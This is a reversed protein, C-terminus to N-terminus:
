ANEFEYIAKIMENMKKMLIKLEKIDNKIETIDSKRVLKDSNDYIKISDNIKKGSKIKVKKKEIVEEIKKGSQIKAKKKEIVEELKKEDLKTKEIIEALSINRIYMKYAIDNIKAIIGGITREHNIAIKEIDFNESLEQLLLNEEDKTWLKGLNKPYDKGSEQLPIFNTFM